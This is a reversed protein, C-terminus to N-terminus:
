PNEDPDEDPADDTEILKNWLPTGRLQNESIPDPLTPLDLPESSSGESEDSGRDPPFLTGESNLPAIRYPVLHPDGEGVTIQRILDSWRSDVYLRLRVKGAVVDMVVGEDTSQVSLKAVRIQRAQRHSDSSPDDPSSASAM